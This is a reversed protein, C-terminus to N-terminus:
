VFLLVVVVAAIRDPLTPAAIWDPLKINRIDATVKAVNPRTQLPTWADTAKSLAFTLPKHGSLVEPSTATAVLGSSATTTGGPPSPLAAPTSPARTCGRVGGGKSSLNMALDCSNRLHLRISAYIQSAGCSLVSQIFYGCLDFNASKKGGDM